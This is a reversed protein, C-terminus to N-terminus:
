VVVVSDVDNVQLGNLLIQFYWKGLALSGIRLDVVPAASPPSIEAEPGYLADTMTPQKAAKIRATRLDINGVGVFRFGNSEAVVSTKVVTPALALVPVKVVPTVGYTGALHRALVAEVSDTAGTVIDASPNVQRELMAHERAVKLADHPLPQILGPDGGFESPTKDIAM